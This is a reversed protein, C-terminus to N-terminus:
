SKSTVPGPAETVVNHVPDSNSAITLYIVESSRDVDEGALPGKYTIDLSSCDENIVVDGTETIDNTKKVGKNDCQVTLVTSVSEDMRATGTISLSDYAISDDNIGYATSVLISPRSSQLDDARGTTMLTFTFGPNASIFQKDQFSTLTLEITADDEIILTTVPGIIITSSGAIFKEPMLAFREEGENEGAGSYWQLTTEKGEDISKKEILLSGEPAVFVHTGKGLKVTSPATGVQVINPDDSTFLFVIEAYKYKNSSCKFQEVDDSRIRWPGVGEVCMGNSEIIGTLDHEFDNDTDVIYTNYLYWTYPDDNYPFKVATPLVVCAKTGNILTNEDAEMMRKAENCTYVYASVGAVLSALLLARM